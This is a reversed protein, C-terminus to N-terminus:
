PHAWMRAWKARRDTLNRPDRAFRGLAAALPEAEERLCRDLPAAALTV